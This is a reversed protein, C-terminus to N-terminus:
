SFYDEYAFIRSSITTWNTATKYTDVLSRPVFVSGWRGASTSYNTLPTSAFMNGTTTGLTCISSNLLFLSILNYCSGFMAGDSLGSLVSFRVESLAYASRFMYSCSSISALEPFDVSQLNQCSGFLYMCNFISALKPFSVNQLNSCSNFMNAGGSISALKPFNANVITSNYYFMNACDNIYQLERFTVTNEINTFKAGTFASGCSKFVEVSNFIDNSLANYFSAGSFAIQCGEICSLLPSYVENIRANAFIAPCNIISTLKSFYINAGDPVTTPLAALQAFLSANASCSILEPMSIYSARQCYWFGYLCSSINSLNPLHIYTAYSCSCFVSYSNIMETLASFDIAFSGDATYFALHCSSILSLNPFLDNMKASTFNTKEFIHSQKNSLVTIYPFVIGDRPLSVGAFAYARLSSTVSFSLSYISSGSYKQYKAVSPFIYRGNEDYLNEGKYQSYYLSGTSSMFSSLWYLTKDGLWYLDPRYESYSPTVFVSAVSYSAVDHNGNETIISTGSPIIYSDPIAEITQAGTLWTYSPITQTATTPTYTTAGLSTLQKTPSADIQVFGASVSSIYGSSFTVSINSSFHTSATILGTASDFIISTMGGTVGMGNVKVSGLALYKTAQSSYFGSPVTIVSGSVNVNAASKGVINGTIKTGNNKTATYASLLKDAAVTDGSVDIITSGNLVVKNVAM